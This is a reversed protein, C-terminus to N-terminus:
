TRPKGTDHAVAAKGGPGLRRAVHIRHQLQEDRVPPEYIRHQPFESHVPKGNLKLTASHEVHEPSRDVRANPACTSAGWALHSRDGLRAYAPRHSPRRVRLLM